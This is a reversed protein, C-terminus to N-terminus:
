EDIVYAVCDVVMHVTHRAPMYPLTAVALEDRTHVAHAAPTYLASVDPVDAQVPQAAPAYPLTVVALEDATHPRHGAPAAADPAVHASQAAPAYLLRGVAAAAHVLQPTPVYPESAPAAVEATQVM